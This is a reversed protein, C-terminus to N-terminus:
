KRKGTQTNRQFTEDTLQMYGAKSFLRQSATNEKLVTANIVIDPHIDDLISLCQSAIGQGFYQPDVFISILYCCSKQRNLRVVGVSFFEGNIYKEAIYFLCHPNVVQKKMWSRHEEWSPVTSNLAFKRTEPLCQWDYVQKIDDHCAKRLIIQEGGKIQDFSSIVSAVRKAGYGDCISFANERFNDYNTIIREIGADLQDAIDEVEIPIAVKAENLNHSITQQNEALPVIISPLGLCAREWSTTGPAGIAITHALMLGAMDEVFDIHTIISPYSETYQKVALYHPAKPSLLATVKIDSYGSVMLAQLVSLTANPQDIGGMSVLIRHASMDEARELARVRLASFQNRMPAYDCGVLIVTEPNVAPRYEEVGRALTQDMLLHCDHERVLDDIAMVRSDMAVKIATEWEKGIGYHDVIVWDPQDVMAIFSDADEQQSVQLWAAYDASHLPAQWHQPTSLQYVGYGRSLIYDIMDGAQPRCAFHVQHGYWTLEDALVLCRMIHGSGIHLSADARIVINM